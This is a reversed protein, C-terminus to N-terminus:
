RQWNQEFSLRLYDAFEKLIVQHLIDPRFDSAEKGIKKKIFAAHEDFNLLVNEKNVTAIQLPAADLLFYIQNKKPQKL